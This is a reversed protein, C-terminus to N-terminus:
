YWRAVMRIIFNHRDSIYLNGASDFDLGSPSALLVSGDLQSTLCTKGEQESGLPGGDKTTGDSAGCQLVASAGSTSQRSKCQVNSNGTDTGNNYGDSYCIQNANAAVSNVYDANAIPFLSASITNPAVTLNSFITANQTSSFNVYKLKQTTQNSQDLVFINTPYAPDTYIGAPGNLQASSTSIAVGGQDGTSTTQCVGVAVTANGNQDVKLICNLENISMYLVPNGSGDQALALSRHYGGINQLNFLPFPSALSGTFSANNTTTSNICGSSLQGLFSAVNGSGNTVGFISSSGPNQSIGRVLCPLPSGVSTSADAFLVQNGFATVAAPLKETSIIGLPYSIGALNATVGDNYNTSGNGALVSAQGTSLNVQTIRANASDSYYLMQNVSDVTLDMPNNSFVSTAAITGIPAAGSRTYGAGIDTTITNATLDMHRVRFFNYDAFYLVNGSVTVGQPNNVQTLIGAAGDSTGSTGGTGISNDISNNLISTPTTSATLGGFTSTAGTGNAFLIRNSNPNSVFMGTVTGTSPYLALDRPDNIIVQGIPVASGTNNTCSGTNYTQNGIVTGVNGATVSTGAFTITGSPSYARVVGGSRNAGGAACAETWYVHGTSDVKLGEPHITGATGAAGATGDKTIAATSNVVVSSLPASPTSVDVSRILNSGYCSVYLLKGASYYDLGYPNNCTVGSAGTATASLPAANNVTSGQFLVQNGLSNSVALVRNNGYLAVYLVPDSTNDNNIAVALPTNIKTPTATNLGGAQGSGFVVHITGAKITTGFYNLDSATRNYYWIVHSAQDSFVYNATGGVMHVALNRPQIRIKTQDATPNLGDGAGLPNGVLTCISGATLNNCYNSFYNVNVTWSVSSNEYGDSVTVQITHAGLLSLTGNPSFTASFSGSPLLTNNVSGDLTWTYTLSDGNADTAAGGTGPSLTLSQGYVTNYTSTANVNLKLPNSNSPSPSGVFVPKGNSKVYIYSPCQATNNYADKVQATMTYIGSVIPLDSQTLTVVSTTKGALASFTSGGPTKVLWSYTLGTGTANVSYTRSSNGGYQTIVDPAGPSTSGPTCSSVTVTSPDTVNISWNVTSTDYGDSMQLTITQTGIQAATPQFIAQYTSGSSSPTFLTPASSGNLLWTATLPDNEADTVIASLTLNSLYTLSSGTSTPSQSGISPPTNKNVTWTQTSSTSSDSAVATVKNTSNPFNSPGLTIFPSTSGGSVNASNVSYSVSCQGPNVIGFSVGPSSPLSAVRLTTSSPSFSTITGCDGTPPNSLVDSFNSGGCSVLFFSLLLLSWSNGRKM